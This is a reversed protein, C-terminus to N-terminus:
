VSLSLNLFTERKQKESIFRSKCSKSSSIIGVVSVQASIAVASRAKAPVGGLSVVFSVFSEVGPRVDCVMNICWCGDITPTPGAAEEYLM